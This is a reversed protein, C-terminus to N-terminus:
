AYFGEPDFLEFRRSLSKRTWIVPRDPDFFQDTCLGLLLANHLIEIRPSSLTCEPTRTDCRCIYPRDPIAIGERLDEPNAYGEEALLNELIALPDQDATLDFGIRIIRPCRIQGDDKGLLTSRIREYCNRPPYPPRGYGANANLEPPLRLM